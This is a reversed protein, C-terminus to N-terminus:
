EQPEKSMGPSAAYAHTRSSRGVKYSAASARPRVMAMFGRGWIGRKDHLMTANYHKSWVKVVGNGPWSIQPLGCVVM